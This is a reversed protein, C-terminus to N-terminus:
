PKLRALKDRTLAILDNLSERMAQLMEETTFVHGCATCDVHVNHPGRGEPTVGFRAACAPCRLILDGSSVPETM